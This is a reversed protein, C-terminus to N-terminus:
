GRFVFYVCWRVRLENNEEVTEEDDEEEDVPFDYIPIEYFKIDEMIRKKFAVLETPTMSDAKALVPIINVRRGLKKMFTIDVERLAHATPQIFYLIVHIRNDKQQQQQQRQQQQNPQIKKKQNSKDTNINTHNTQNTWTM